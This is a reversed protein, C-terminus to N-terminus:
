VERADASQHCDTMMFISSQVARNCAWVKKADVHQSFVRDYQEAYSLGDLQDAPAKSIGQAADQVSAARARCM